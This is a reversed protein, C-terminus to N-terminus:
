RTVEFSEEGDEVDRDEKEIKVVHAAPPGRDVDQLLKQISEEDGQM